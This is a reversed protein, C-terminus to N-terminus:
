PIPSKARNGAQIIKRFGAWDWDSFILARGLAMHAEALQDDIDLAKQAAAKARQMREILTLGSGALIYTHAIGAYAAAFGPDLQIAQEFLTVAQQSEKPRRRNFLHRARLYRDYAEVNNTYRKGVLVREGDSLNLNMAQALQM